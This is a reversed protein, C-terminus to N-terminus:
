NESFNNAFTLVYVEYTTNVDISLTYSSENSSLGTSIFTNGLWRVNGRINLWSRNYEPNWTLLFSNDTGEVATYNLKIPSEEVQTSSVSAGSGCGVVGVFLLGLLGILLWNKKQRM